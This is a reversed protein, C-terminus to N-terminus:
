RLRRLGVYQLVAFLAVIEAVIAATWKGDTTLDPWGALLIAWSGVVWAIDGAIVTWVQKPEVPEQRVTQVLQYVWGLLGVGIIAPIWGSELGLFRSVPNAAVILVLGSAGSFIANGILAGRLLSTRSRIGRAEAVM